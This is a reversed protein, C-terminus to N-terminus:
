VCKDFYVNEKQLEMITKSLTNLKEHIDLLRDGLVFLAEASLDTPCNSACFLLYAIGNINASEFDIDNSITWPSIQGSNIHVKNQNDSELINEVSQVSIDCKEEIMANDAGSEHMDLVTKVMKATIM